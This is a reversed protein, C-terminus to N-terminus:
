KYVTPITSQTFYGLESLMGDLTDLSLHDAWGFADESVCQPDTTNSQALGETSINIVTDTTIDGSYGLLLKDLWDPTQHSEVHLNNQFQFVPTLIYIEM